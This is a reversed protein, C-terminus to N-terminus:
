HSWCPRPVVGVGWRAEEWSIESANHGQGDRGPELGTEGELHPEQQGSPAVEQALAPSQIWGRRPSTLLSRGTPQHRGSARRAHWLLPASRDGSSGCPDGQLVSEGPERGRGARRPWRLESEPNYPVASPSRGRALGPTVGVSLASPQGRLSRARRGRSRGKAREGRYHLAAPNGRLRHARSGLNRERVSAAGRPELGRRIACAPPRRCPAPGWASGARYGWRPRRRRGGRGAGAPIPTHDRSEATVELKADLDRSRELARLLNGPLLGPWAGWNGAAQSGPSRESVRPSRGRGRSLRWRVSSDGDGTARQRVAALLM